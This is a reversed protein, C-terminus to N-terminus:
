RFRQGAIKIGKAACNFSSCRVSFDPQELFFEISGAFRVSHTSEMLVAVGGVLPMGSRKPFPGPHTKPPLRCGEVSGCLSAILFHMQLMVLSGSLVTERAGQIGPR